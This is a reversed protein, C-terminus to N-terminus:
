CESREKKKAYNDQQTKIMYDAVKLFDTMRRIIEKIEENSIDKIIKKILHPHQVYFKCVKYEWTFVEKKHVYTFIRAM